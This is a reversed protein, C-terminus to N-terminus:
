NLMLLPNSVKKKYFEYFIKNKQVQVRLDLLPMWGSENRSPSDVTLNIFQSISNAIEVLINSTRIDDPIDRDKDIDEEIPKVEGDM